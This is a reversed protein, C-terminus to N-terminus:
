KLSPMEDRTIVYSSSYVKQLEAVSTATEPFPATWTNFYLWRTATSQLQDPDPIPGNDHLAIPVTTGAIARHRRLDVDHSRLEVVRQLQRRGRQLRWGV